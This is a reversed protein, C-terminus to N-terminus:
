VQRKQLAPQKHSPCAAGAASATVVLAQRAEALARRKLARAAAARRELLGAREASARCMVGPRTQCTAPVGFSSHPSLNLSVHASTLLEPVLAGCLELHCCVCTGKLSISCILEKAALRAPRSRTM